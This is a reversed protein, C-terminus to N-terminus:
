TINKLALYVDIQTRENPEDPDFWHAKVLESIEDTVADVGIRLKIGRADFLELVKLLEGDTISAYETHVYSLKPFILLQQLFEASTSEFERSM